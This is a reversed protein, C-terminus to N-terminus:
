LVFCVRPLEIDKGVGLKKYTDIVRMYKITEDNYFIDKEVRIGPTQDATEASATATNSKSEPSQPETAAELANNSTLTTADTNTEDNDWDIEDEFHSSSMKSRESIEINSSQLTM